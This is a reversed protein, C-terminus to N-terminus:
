AATSTLKASFLKRTNRDLSVAPPSNRLATSNLATEEESKSTLIGRSQPSVLATPIGYRQDFRALIKTVKPPLNRKLSFFIQALRGLM